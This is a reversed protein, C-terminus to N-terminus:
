RVLIGEKELMNKFAVNSEISNRKVTRKYDNALGEREDVAYVHEITPHNNAMFWARRMINSISFLDEEVYNYRVVRYKNEANAIGYLYIKKM